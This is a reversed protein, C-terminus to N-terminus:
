PCLPVQAPQVRDQQTGDGVEGYQNHGWCWLTGDAEHACTHDVGAAFGVVSAGLATVQVPTTELEFSWDGLQGNGNWGWCWLTGDAKGACTHFIGAAVEVVSAGLATVQV